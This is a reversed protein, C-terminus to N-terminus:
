HVVVVGKEVEAAVRGKRGEGDGVRDEGGEEACVQCDVLRM